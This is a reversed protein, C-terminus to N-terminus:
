KYNKGDSYVKWSDLPTFFGFNERETGVLPAVEFLRTKLGELKFNTGGCINQNNSKESCATQQSSIRLKVVVFSQAFDKQM